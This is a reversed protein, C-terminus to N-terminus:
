HEQIDCSGARIASCSIIRNPTNLLFFHRGKFEKALYLHPFVLHPPEPGMLLIFFFFNVANCRALSLEQVGWGGCRSGPLIERLCCGFLVCEKSLLLSSEQPLASSVVSPDELRLGQEWLGFVSSHLKTKGLEKSLGGRM